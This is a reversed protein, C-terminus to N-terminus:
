RLLSTAQCNHYFFPSAIAAGGNLLPRYKSTLGFYGFFWAGPLEYLCGCITLDGLFHIGAIIAHRLLHEILRVIAMFM